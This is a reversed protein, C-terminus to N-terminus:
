IASPLFSNRRMVPCPLSQPTLKPGLQAVLYVPFRTILIIPVEVSLNGTSGDVSHPELGTSNIYAKLTLPSLPAISM